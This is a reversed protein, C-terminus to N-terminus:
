HGVKKPFHGVKKPDIDLKKQSIDLKKRRESYWSTFNRYRHPFHLYSISVFKM